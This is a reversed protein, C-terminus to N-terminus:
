VLNLFKLRDILQAYYNNEGISVFPVNVENEM